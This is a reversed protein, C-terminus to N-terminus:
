PTGGIVMQELATRTVQSHAAEAQLAGLLTRLWANMDVQESRIRIGGSGHSVTCRVAGHEVTAALVNDGLTVTVGSLERGKARRLLGGGAYQVQLRAGLADRLQDVLAHLLISTDTSDARISAVALDLDFDSGTGALSGTGGAAVLDATSGAGPIPDGAGAGAGAGAGPIPDGTGPPADGTDPTRDGAVTTM